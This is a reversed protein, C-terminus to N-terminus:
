PKLQVYCLLMRKTKLVDATKTDQREILHEKKELSYCSQSIGDYGHIDSFDFSRAARSYMARWDHCEDASAAEADVAVSFEPRLEDPIM